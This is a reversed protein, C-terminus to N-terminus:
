QGRVQRIEIVKASHDSNATPRRFRVIMRSSWREGYVWVDEVSRSSAMRIRRTPFGLIAQVQALSMGRVVREERQALEVDGQPLKKLDESTMWRGHIRIVGLQELRRQIEKSVAPAESSASTWARKLYEIGRERHAPLKWQTSAHLFDGALRMQGDLGSTAAVSEQKSLWTKAAQQVDNVRQIELLLGIVVDLQRRKLARIDRLRYDAWLSKLMRIATTEEPLEDDVYSSLNLANSHDPKLDALLQKLRVQRYLLRELQWRESQDANEYARSQDTEFASLLSESINVTPMNWGTVKQKLDELITWDADNAARLCFVRFRIDEQIKRSIEIPPEPEVLAWLAAPDRRHRELQLDFTTTRCLEIAAGLERDSYFGAIAEYQDALKYRAKADTESIKSLQQNMREVDSPEIILRTMQFKPRRKGDVFYGSVALPTGLRIREPVRVGKEPFFVINLNQMRIQSASRGLYRGTIQVKRKEAAWDKWHGKAQLLSMATM